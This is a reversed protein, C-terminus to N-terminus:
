VDKQRGGGRGLNQIPPPNAPFGPVRLPVRSSGPRRTDVFERSAIETVIVRARRACETVDANSIKRKEVYEEQGMEKALRSEVMANAERRIDKYWARNEGHARAIEDSTCKSIDETWCQMLRDDDLTARLTVAFLASKGSVRWQGVSHALIRTNM